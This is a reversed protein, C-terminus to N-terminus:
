LAPVLWSRAREPASVNVPAPAPTVPAPTVPAPEVPKALVLKEGADAPAADTGPQTARAGVVAALSALDLEEEAEESETAPGGETASLASALADLGDSESQEDDSM